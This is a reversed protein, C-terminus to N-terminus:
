VSKEYTLKRFHEALEASLGSHSHHQGFPLAVHGYQLVDRWSYKDKMFHWAFSGLTIFESMTPKGARYGTGGRNPFWHTHPDWRARLLQELTKGTHKEIHERCWRVACTLHIIGPNRMAEVETPRGIVERASRLWRPDVGKSVAYSPSCFQMIPKGDVFFCEPSFSRDAIVDSDWFVVAEAGPCHKDATMKHFQQQHHGPLAKPGSIQKWWVPCEDKPKFHPLSKRFTSDAPTLIRIAHFGHAFKALSALAYHLWTADPEHSIILIDTKM